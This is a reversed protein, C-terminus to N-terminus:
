PRLISLQRDIRRQYQRHDSLRRGIGHCRQLFERLVPRQYRDKSPHQEWILPDSAVAYLREFDGAELPEIKILENHIHPQLEFPM